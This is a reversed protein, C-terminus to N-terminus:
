HQKRDNTENESIDDLRRTLSNSKMGQKESRYIIRFNFEFLFEVWRVQRRNLQKIFMFYELNKHDILIKILDEVSTETLESHWEEFARIIALLEKDYIEYNYKQPSMKKFIFVVSRLTDQKNKQSLM